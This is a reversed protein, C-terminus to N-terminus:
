STPKMAENPQFREHVFVINQFAFLETKLPSKNLPIVGTPLLRYPKYNPLIETFDRFFVKSIINMENFEIQILDIKDQSLLKSAGKLVELEHGETDIKLLNIRDISKEEVYFDLTSMSVEIEESEAGHIDEIVEKYLSAHSHKSDKSDDKKDYFKILGPSSSLGKMNTVINERHFRKELLHFVIPNPEFAVILSNPLVKHCFNTYDGVNAGVDFITPNTGTVFLPFIQEIFNQEGSIFRNQYNLIGLGNLSCEFFFENIKRFSPRAALRRWTKKLYKRLYKKM